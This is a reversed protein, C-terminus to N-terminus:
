ESDTLSGRYLFIRDIAVGSRGSMQFLFGLSVVSEQELVFSLRRDSVPCSALLADPQDFDPMQEGLAVAMKSAGASIGQAPIFSFEYKGRPLRIRCYMKHNELAPAFSDWGTYVCLADGKNKDVYMGTVISDNDVANEIIWRDAQLYESAQSEEPKLKVTEKQDFTRFRKANKINVSTKGSAFPRQHQPLIQESLDTFPCAVDLCFVGKSAGWADGDPGFGHRIGLGQGTLRDIVAGGSQNFDYYVMLGHEQKMRQPEAVPANAYRALLTDPLAQNWLRFEDVVANMPHQAGGLVFSSSQPLASVVQRTHPMRLSDARVLSGDRYFRVEGNHFRVAYHHWAGPQVFGAGSAVAVSDLEFRMNGDASAWLQWSEKGTGIGSTAKQASADMWWDVTLAERAAEWNGKTEVSATGSGFNLGNESDAACVVLARSRTYKRAGKENAAELTVDYVGPAYLRLTAKHGKTRLSTKRSDLSWHWENPVYRSRDTLVVEEGALIVGSSLDFAPEPAVQEVFIRQVSHGVRKGDADKVRLKVKYSGSKPYVTAAQQTYAQESEAGPMTWQYAYGAVPHEPLFSIREGAAAVPISARFSASRIPRVISLTKRVSLTDGSFTSARLILEYNGPRAYYLQINKSTRASVSADPAEWIFNKISSGCNAAVPITQGAYLVGDPVGIGLFRDEDQMERATEQKPFDENALAFKGFPALEAHHGGAFDRWFTKGNQQFLQGKYYALLGTPMGAGAYRRYMSRRIQEASRAEKWIRVESLIGDFSGAEDTAFPWHGFGGLGNRNRARVGGVPDGDIFVTLSDQRVVFAFHHWRGTDILGPRSNFRSNGDWGVSLSGNDNAHILFHGWGPGSSQNWDHWSDPKLWYEVTAEPYNSSFVDPVTFGSRHLVLATGPRDGTIDPRFTDSCISSITDSVTEKVGYPVTGQYLKRSDTRYLAAVSYSATVDGCPYHRASLDLTDSTGKDTHVVYAILPYHSKQPADWALICGDEIHANRPAFFPEGWVVASLVTQQGQNRITTHFGDTLLTEVGNRDFEYDVVACRYISGTGIAGEKSEVILFYKLPRHTDFEASLDTLDYGFDMPEDHLKGDAWKGLMPTQADMGLTAQRNGRGDGAFKFHEMAVIREPKTAATDSAIGVSLKLESRRSYDMLLRLTRKPRYEKRVHYFEPRWAGGEHQRVPFGYKYPCYIFGKNAWGNGWSNVIIWAGCEDKDREGYVQNSDLDFVIRDDYGVITLAHDVGNGWRTVYKQGVVGAAKNRGQPDNAITGQKCASAVGIGCIGGAGFSDDGQHNWLWNKVYERGAETDVGYPSFSNHSIRNFMASYWKDYGQMWGFDMDSCDQNGFLRSYTPGGYVTANPVGNAQAMGEKGSHSNTLLWTFHTPYIHEPCDATDRRYANIEHTFMYGIRSASGCSGGDQNFVPPFYPSLANNVHDPRISPTDTSQATLSSRTLLFFAGTLLFSILRQNNM